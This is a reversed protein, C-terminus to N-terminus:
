RLRDPVGHLGELFQRASQRADCVPNHVPLEDDLRIGGEPRYGCGRIFSEIDLLPYPSTDMVDEVSVCYWIMDHLFRTEVPFPVDAALIAGREKWRRWVTLFQQLLDKRSAATPQMTSKLAPVVNQRAWSNVVQLEELCGGGQELRTGWIPHVVVYGFALPAGYLGDSEVDLVLYPRSM